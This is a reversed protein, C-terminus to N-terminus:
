SDGTDAKRMLVLTATAQSITKSSGSDQRAVLKISWGKKLYTMDSINNYKPAFDIAATGTVTGTEDYILAGFQRLDTGSDTYVCSAIILWRGSTNIYISDSSTAINVMSDDDYVERGFEILVGTANAITQPTIRLVRCGLSSVFDAEVSVAQINKVNLTEQSKFVGSVLANRLQTETGFRGLEDLEGQSLTENKAIKLLLDKIEM